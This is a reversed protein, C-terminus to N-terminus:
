FYIGLVWRLLNVVGFVDVIRFCDSFCRSKLFFTESFILLLDFIVELLDRILWGEYFFLFVM